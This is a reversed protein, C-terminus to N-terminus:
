QVLLRYSVFRLDFNSIVLLSVKCRCGCYLLMIIKNNSSTLLTHWKERHLSLIDFTQVWTETSLLLLLRLFMFDLM